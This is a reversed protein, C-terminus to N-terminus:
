EGQGGGALLRSIEVSLTSPPYPKLLFSNAGALNAEQRRRDDGSTMIVVTDASVATEANRIAQLLELGNDGRALNCDIVLADAGGTIGARARVLDPFTSVRFGDMELLMKTLHSNTRDDDVLIVHAM